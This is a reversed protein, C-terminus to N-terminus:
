ENWLLVFGQGNCEMKHEGRKTKRKLVSSGSSGDCGLRRGNGCSEFSVTFGGAWQWGSDAMSMLTGTDRWRGGIMKRPKLVRPHRRRTVLCTLDM